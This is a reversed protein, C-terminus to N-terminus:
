EDDSSEKSMQLMITSFETSRFAEIKTIRLHFTADIM